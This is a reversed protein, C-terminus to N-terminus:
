TWFSHALAHSCSVAQDGPEVPQWPAAALRCDELERRKTWNRQTRPWIGMCNWPSPWWSRKLDWPSHCKSINLALHLDTQRWPNWNWEGRSRVGSKKRVPLGVSKGVGPGGGSASDGAKWLARWWNKGTVAYRSAGSQTEWDMNGIMIKGRFFGTLIFYM